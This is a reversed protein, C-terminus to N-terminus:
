YFRSSSRNQHQKPKPITTWFNKAFFRLIGMVDKKYYFAGTASGSPSWQRFQPWDYVHSKMAEECVCHVCLLVHTTGIPGIPQVDSRIIIHLIFQFRTSLRGDLSYNSAFLLTHAVRIAWDIGREAVSLESLYFEWNIGRSLQRQVRCQYLAVSPILTEDSGVRFPDFAQVWIVERNFDIDSCHM